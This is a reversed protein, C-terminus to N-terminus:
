WGLSYGNRAINGPGIDSLANKRRFTALAISTFSNVLLLAIISPRAWSRNQKWETIPKELGVLALMVLPVFINTAFQFSFHLLRHVHALLIAALLCCLM